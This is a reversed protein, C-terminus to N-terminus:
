AELFFGRLERTVSVTSYLCSNLSLETLSPPLTSDNSNVVALALSSSRSPPSPASPPLAWQASVRRQLPALPPSPASPPLAWQASVRRPCLPELRRLVWPWMVLVEKSEARIWRKGLASGPIHHDMVGSLGSDCIRDAPHCGRKLFIIGM